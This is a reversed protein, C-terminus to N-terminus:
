ATSPRALRQGFLSTEVIWSISNSSTAAPMRCRRSCPQSFITRRPLLPPCSAPRTRGLGLASHPFTLPQCLRRRAVGEIQIIEIQRRGVGDRANRPMDTLPKEGPLNSSGDTASSLSGIM